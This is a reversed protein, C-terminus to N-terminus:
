RKEVVADYFKAGHHTASVVGSRAGCFPHQSLRHFPYEGLGCASGGLLPETGGNAGPKASIGSVQEVVQGIGSRFPDWGVQKLPANLFVPFASGIM